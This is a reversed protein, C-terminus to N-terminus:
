KTLGKFNKNAEIKQNYIKVELDSFIEELQNFSIGMTEFKTMCPEDDIFDVQFCASGVEKTEFSYIEENKNKSNKIENLKAKLEKFYIDISSISSYGIRAGANIKDGNIFIDIAFRKEKFSFEDIEVPRAYFMKVNGLFSDKVRRPHKLADLFFKTYKNREIFERPTLIGCDVAIFTDSDIEICATTYPYGLEELEKIPLSEDFNWITFARGDFEKNIWNNLSM